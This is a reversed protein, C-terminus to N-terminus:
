IAVGFDQILETLQQDTLCKVDGDTTKQCGPENEFDLDIGDMDYFSIWKIYAQIVDQSMKAPFPYTAGGVSVFVEVTPNKSRLMKMTRKLAEPDQIAWQTGICNVKTPDWEAQIPSAFALFIQNIANSVNALDCHSNADWTCQSSWTQFYGGLSPVKNQQEHELNM